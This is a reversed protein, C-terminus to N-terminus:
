YLPYKECISKVIEKMKEKNFNPEKIVTAIVYALMAMDEEILGRTTVAPTGIRIGSTIAPTLPDNPIM